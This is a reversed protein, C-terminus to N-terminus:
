IAVHYTMAKLSRRNNKECLEVPSTLGNRLWIRPRLTSGSSRNSCVSPSTPMGPRASIMEAFLNATHSRGVRPQALWLADSKKFGRIQSFALDRSTCNNPRYESFFVIDIRRDALDRLLKEPRDCSIEIRVNLNRERFTKSLRPVLRLCRDSNVGISLRGMCGAAEGKLASVAEDRLGVMRSAYEYLLQGAKTLRYDRRSSRDLLSTGLDLELKRLAISVAPQTRRVRLAARGVSHEEVVAVFMELQMFEM